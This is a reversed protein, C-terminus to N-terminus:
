SSFPYGSHCNSNCNMGLRNYMSLMSHTPDEGGFEFLKLEPEWGLCHGIFKSSFKFDTRKVLSLVYSWLFSQKLLWHCIMEHTAWSCWITAPEVLPQKVVIQIINYGSKYGVLKRSVIVHWSYNYIIFQIYKQIDFSVHFQHFINFCFVIWMVM